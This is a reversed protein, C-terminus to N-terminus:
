IASFWEHSYLWQLKNVGLCWRKISGCQPNPKLIFKPCRWVMAPITPWVMALVKPIIALITSWKGGSSSLNLSLLRCYNCCSPWVWMKPTLCARPYCILCQNLSCFHLNANLFLTNVTEMWGTNLSEGPLKWIARPHDYHFVKGSLFEM